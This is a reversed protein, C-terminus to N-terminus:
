TIPVQVPKGTAFGAGFGISGPLDTMTGTCKTYPRHPLDRRAWWIFFIAMRCDKKNPSIKA